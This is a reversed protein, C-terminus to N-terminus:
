GVCCPVEPMQLPCIGKCALMDLLPCVQPCQTPLQSAEVVSAQRSPGDPDFCPPTEGVGTPTDPIACDSLTAEQEPPTVAPECAAQVHEVPVAPQSDM